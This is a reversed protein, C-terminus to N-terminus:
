STVSAAPFRACGRMGARHATRSRSCRQARVVYPGVLQDASDRNEIRLRDGVRLELLTPMVTVSEGRDLRAQTGAPVIIEVLQGKPLSGLSGVLLGLLGVVIVVGVLLASPLRRRSM